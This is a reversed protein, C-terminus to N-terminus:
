AGVPRIRPWIYIAYLLFAVLELLRGILLLTSPLGSLLSLVVCLVGMNLLVFAGRAFGLRGFDGGRFRPILWHAVALALQVTWGVLLLEAHAPLWRWLGPAFLVGKNALMLMGLTLGVAFHILALRIAWASLTPM